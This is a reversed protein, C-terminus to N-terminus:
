RVLILVLVMVLLLLSPARRIYSSSPSLRVWSTTSAGILWCPISTVGVITTSTDPGVLLGSLIIM